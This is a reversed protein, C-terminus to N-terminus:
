FGAFTSKFASALDEASERLITVGERRLTLEPASNVAGLCAHPQGQFLATFAAAAEPPTSVLLRGASESYLLETLTLEGQLPLHDLNLDAGLRGALSMEALAVALGGDSLDHCASVLGQRMAQHLARYRALSPAAEVEPVRGGKLGMLRMLESGALECKTTGLIFVLDGPLKFDSSVAGAADDM